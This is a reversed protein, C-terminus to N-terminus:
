KFLDSNEITDILSALEKTSDMLVSAKELAKESMMKYFEKDNVYKEIISLMENDDVGFENGACTYVDGYRYTVVPVGKSLAEISSTGGGIRKPNVYLDCCELVALVDDQTGLNTTNKKFMENKISVENFLEFTGIFIIHTNYQTSELLLELFDNTLEKTLRNGVLVLLFKDEPLGLDKRTFTHTQPKFTFTFKSSIISRKDFGYKELHEIDSSIIERGIIHFQAKTTPLSSPVTAVTAVPVFNSCLDATLNFSGINLIMYPKYESIILLMNIIEDLNPMNSSQYFPIIYEDFQISNSLQLEININPQILGYFPIANQQSLLECTNILLVEYGLKQLSLCKDIATKTSGHNLSLFQAIMVIILKKNRKEKEIFFVASEIKKLYTDYIKSYLSLILDTTREDHLKLNTFGIAACQYLIFYKTNAEIEDEELAIELIENFYKVQPDLNILLSLFFIREKAPLKNAFRDLELFLLQKGLIDQQTIFSKLRIVGQEQKSYSTCIFIDNLLEYLEKKNLQKM